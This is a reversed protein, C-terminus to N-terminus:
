QEDVPFFSSLRNGERDFKHIMTSSASLPSKWGGLYIEGSRSVAISTGSFGAPSFIFSSQFTALRDFVNVRSQALDLVYLNGKADCTLSWPLLFLGPGKGPGGITRIMHGTEDFQKVHKPAKDIVYIAGTSDITFGAANEPTIGQLKIEDLYTFISEFPRL